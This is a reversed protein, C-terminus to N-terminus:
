VGRTRALPGRGWALQEGLRAPDHVGLWASDHASLTAALVLAHLDGALNAACRLTDPHDKGLAQRCRALIVEDLDRAAQAEGLLRLDIALHRASRLTASDDEGLNRRRRELTGQDLDRAAQVEGLERLSTALSSAFSLTDRHDEGLTPSYRTLADEALNRAEAYRGMERLALDLDLTILRVNEDDEDDDGSLERWRHRLDRALHYGTRTDGHTILCWCAGCALSRLAPSTAAALDQALLHPILLAWRPWTGPDLVDGPNSAALIAEACARIVSAQEPALHDRLIVQTLRHMQLSGHDIRVLSRRSLPALTQGWALPDAARAALEEPLDAAASTFLDAPIPEPALFACLSALQAAALDERTLRDAILQTTAALSRPYSGPVGQDLLQGARKRLLALYQAAAMGTEAMFAAAQAIALPLDGLQDALRDADAAGLGPM